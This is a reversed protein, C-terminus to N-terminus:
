LNFKRRAIGALGLLGSGFMVLTGPEPVASQGGFTTQLAGTTASVCGINTECYARTVQTGTYDAWNYGAGQNPFNDQNNVVIELILDGLGPNYTFSIGSLTLTTGFNQGGAPVTATGLLSPSGSYNGALPIGLNLGVASYGWSFTYSGGLVVAPGSSGPWYGWSISTITFPGSFASSVFAEQYDFSQGVNTGSDNCMFPYCNGSDANGVTISTAHLMLTMSLLAVLTLLKLTAKM